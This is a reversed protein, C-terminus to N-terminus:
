SIAARVERPDVLGSAVALIAWTSAGLAIAGFLMVVSSVMPTVLMVAVAMVGTILCVVGISRGLRLLRLDLELHVIYLNVAVYVTHTAVTAAAAGVVGITPILVINLGLNAVSTAGKAIARHRARGLYDLSDSTLNTIAQLVIFGSLIQLVPVAGAYDAGFTMTVFPEAVIALGVAAPIYLLLTNSLATEYIRRAQELQGSAKQEGFNPSITFGLSEAPALVFDSIQKGLTYFAVATPTLFVGVLVTDIQKDIVNASRTATLPISYELLRRSLGEEYEEAPEHRRYFKYYLVLLGAVASLAYGVIYGLLAGLAGLGLLVFAVAFILRAFGSFAQVAASYVLQNYGQFVIQTFTSFSMAVVYLIGVALFPAASPDGLAIALHEHFVFLLYGVVSIIVLKFTITSTLLHPIQGPDKESYESVYRAVSKGIGLDAVLQVVALIGIVWYLTGYGDPDLLYRALLFMLLASSIMYVARAVLTAKFGHVIHEQRSM